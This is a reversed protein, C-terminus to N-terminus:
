QPVSRYGGARRYAASGLVAIGMRSGLHSWSIIERLRFTVVALIASETIITAAVAGYLGFIPILTGHAVLGIMVGVAESIMTSIQRDSSDLLMQMVVVMPFIAILVALAKLLGSSIEFGQGFFLAIVEPALLMLGVMAVDTQAGAAAPLVAAVAVVVFISAGRLASYKKVM